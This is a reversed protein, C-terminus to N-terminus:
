RFLVGLLMVALIPGISALGILGFKEGSNETELRLVSAVGIGLALIFPVAMPGTTVGGADFSIAIFDKPVFFSLLFVLTYGGILLYHLPIRFITRIMALAVFIALGLSVSWILTPASVTGESTEEIQKALIRVDPEAITVVLGLLFGTAIIFGVKKTSPLKRGIMEGIPLLGANVGILFLFFGVSVFSVGILFQILAEFPIRIFILQLLIVVTTVPLIAAAVEKFTDRVNDM